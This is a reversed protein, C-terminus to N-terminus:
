LHDITLPFSLYSFVFALLPPIILAKIFSIFFLSYTASSERWIRVNEIFSSARLAQFIVPIFLNWLQSWKGGDRQVTTSNSLWTQSKTARHVTAWWAGRDNPNELYSYQLPSDNGEGPSRGSGPILSEAGTVERVNCASEKGSLWRPLGERKTNSTTFNLFFIALTVSVM